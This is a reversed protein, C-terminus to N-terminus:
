LLSDPTLIWFPDSKRKKAAPFPFVVSAFSVGFAPEIRQERRERKHFPVTKSKPRQAEEAKM